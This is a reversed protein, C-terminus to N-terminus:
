NCQATGELIFLHNLLLFERLQEDVDHHLERHARPNRYTMTIATFMMARGRRESEDLGNWYLRPSEFKFAEAFLKVGQGALLTRKRIVDELRRYGTLLCEDPQEFFRIALDMLRGDLISFPM